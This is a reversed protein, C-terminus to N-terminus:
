QRALQVGRSGVHTAVKSVVQTQTDMGSFFKVWEQPTSGQLWVPKWTMNDMGYYRGREDRFVILAHAGTDKQLDLNKWDYVIYYAELGAQDFRNFLEQAFPACAGNQMKGSIDKAKAIQLANEASVSMVMGLLVAMVTTVSNTKM